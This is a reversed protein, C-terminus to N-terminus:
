GILGHSPRDRRTADFLRSRTFPLVQLARVYSKSEFMPILVAFTDSVIATTAFAGRILAPFFVNRDSGAVDLLCSETLFTFLCPELRDNAVGVAWVWGYRM